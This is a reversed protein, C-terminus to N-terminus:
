FAMPRARIRFRVNVRDQVQIAGGLISLPMIGFDTQDLPLEGSVSLEDVSTEIEASVRAIRTIGNLTITVNLVQNAEVNAVSIVAFPHGDVHLVKGLMNERTAAIAAESPRADFGAETRLGQEDVVLRDLQVYLDSLGDKPAVFGQVDHSAVVHDHGLHALSGARRVEIVILSRDPEIRFVPEGREFAQRYYADPFGHPRQAEGETLRAVPPACASMLGAVLVAGIFPSRCCRLLQMLFMLLSAVFPM